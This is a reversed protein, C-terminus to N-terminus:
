KEKWKLKERKRHKRKVEVKRFQALSSGTPLPRNWYSPPTQNGKFVGELQKM